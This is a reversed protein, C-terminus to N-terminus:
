KINQYITNLEKSEVRVCINYKAFKNMQRTTSVSYKETTLYWKDTKVGVVTYYSQLLEYKSFTIVFLQMSDVQSVNLADPYQRLVDKKTVSM